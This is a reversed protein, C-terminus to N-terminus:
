ICLARRLVSGVYFGYARVGMRGEWVPKKVFNAQLVFIHQTL